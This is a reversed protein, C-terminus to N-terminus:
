VTELFSSPSVGYKRKFMRSFYKTDSFGVKYSIESVSYDFDEIMKAAKKLRFDRVFEVMTMGTLDKLKKYTKSHSMGVARCIFEAGLEQKTLNNELIEVMKILFLDDGCIGEEVKPSTLADTHVKKSILKRNKILNRIRSLLLVKDFPKTVYEDAGMEFGEHIFVLSTRATLLVVPIHSTKIEAKLKKTLEIGSMEPMMVDTVILAPLHQKAIDLGELGNKAELIRYYKKLHEVLLFRIEDSDEVVLVLEEITAPGPMGHHRFEVLEHHDSSPKDKEESSLQRTGVIRSVTKAPAMRWRLWVAVLALVGLSVLLVPSSTNPLDSSIMDIGPVFPALSRSHNFLSRLM